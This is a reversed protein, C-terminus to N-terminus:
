SKDDGEGNSGNERDVEPNDPSPSETPEGANTQIDNKILQSLESLLRDDSEEPIDESGDAYFEVVPRRRKHAFEAAVILLFLALSVGSIILGYKVAWPFYYMHVTHEGPTLEVGT